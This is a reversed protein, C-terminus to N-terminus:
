FPGSRKDFEAKPGAQPQLCSAAIIVFGHGHALVVRFARPGLRGVARRVNTHACQAAVPQYSAKSGATLLPFCKVNRGKRACVM